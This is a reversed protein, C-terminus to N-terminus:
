VTAARRRLGAVALVVLTVVFPLMQVLDPPVAGHGQLVIQVADLAAFALCALAAGVPRWRALIVAALAIFGRGGSMGAQFQHQDYALAVGGVGVLAGAWTVAALRVPVVAVGAVQAAEPDEGVARVRLGFRTRGLVWAVAVVLGVVLPVLVLGQTSAVAPSNSSSGYLARLVFRTGGAAALNLALGSVIADGRGVVVIAGHTVGFLAGVVVGAALGALSSGTALHVAVAALASALLIGELAITVVGAREALVGGLAACVYPLAMALTQFLMATTFLASM